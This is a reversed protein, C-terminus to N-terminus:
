IETNNACKRLHYSLPLDGRLTYIIYNIALKNVNKTLYFGSM